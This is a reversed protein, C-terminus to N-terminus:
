STGFELVQNLVERRSFNYERFRLSQKRLGELYRFLIKNQGRTELGAEWSWMNGCEPSMSISAMTESIATIMLRIKHTCIPLLILVPSYPHHNKVWLLPNDAWTAWHGLVQRGICSICPVWTWDRPWSSGRSNSIAVWKLIRAQFIGQVSSGPQGCNM